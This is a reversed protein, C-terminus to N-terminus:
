LSKYAHVHKGIIAMPGPQNNIHHEHSQAVEENTQRGIKLMDM